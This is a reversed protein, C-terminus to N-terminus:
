SFVITITQAPSPAAVVSFSGGSPSPLQSPSTSSITYTYNGVPLHFVIAGAGVAKTQNLPFVLAPTTGSTITVTWTNLAALHSQVFRVAETLLKFKVIKTFVHTPVHLGGLSPMVKYETGPGTIAFRYAAGAPLLFAISTGNTANSASAPGGHPAAPLLSVSWPAGPYPRYLSNSSENFFVTELPGFVVTWVATGRLSYIPFGFTQNPNGPGQIRAVGYGAPPAIAFTVAGLPVPFTISGRSNATLGAQVTTNNGNELGVTVNWNLGIPLRVERFTLSYAPQRTFNITVYAPSGNVVLTGSAPSPAFLFGPDSPVTGVTFSYTGNPQSFTISSTPSSLTGGQLEVSWYTGSPLGSEVFSETLPLVTVLDTASGVSAPTRESDTRVYCVYTSLGLSPTTFRYTTAGSYALDGSTCTGSSPARYWQVSVPSLGGNGRFTWSGGGGVLLNYGSAPDFVSSPGSLGPPSSPVTLSFWNGGRYGWTDNFSLNGSANAGGFLLLMGDSADPTLASGSRPTPSAVPSLAVWTAGTWKWTDGLVGSVGSGGFLLVYGDIGDFVMAGASRAPPSTAPLVQTWTGGTWLWTDAVPGGSTNGGFLVMQGTGEDYAISGNARAPPSSTPTLQTWSAGNWAWTDGFYTSGSYGGFLLLQGTGADYALMGGARAAPATAPALAAWDSGNWTWTDGLVGSANQGGFLVVNGTAPDFAMMAGARASPSASPAQQTWNAPDPATLSISQGAYITPSAPSIPGATLPTGYAWTDGLPTSGYLGGFLVTSGGEPDFASAAGARATPNSSPSLQTWTVGSFEWTDSFFGSLLSPNNDGGFLVMAGDAQDFQLLGSSRASPSSTPSLQTWSAGNWVWTDGLVGGSGTGGFLVIRGTAPDFAMMGNSRAPPSAAPVLQQWTTGTWTWTDSYFTPGNSGGFLLLQGTAPDYAIAAGTRATPATAPALSNWTSGTWSWTDGLLRTSGAGGFLITQGTAPDFALAGSARAPPSTAPTMQTWAGARYTWTDALFSSTGQGGFLVIEGVAADYTM